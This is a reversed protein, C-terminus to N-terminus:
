LLPLTVSLPHSPHNQKVKDAAEIALIALAPNSGDENVVRQTSNEPTPLVRLRDENAAKSRSTPSRGALDHRLVALRDQIADSYKEKAPSSSPLPSFQLRTQKKQSRLSRLPM